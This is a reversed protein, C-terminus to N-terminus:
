KTGFNFQTVQTPPPSELKTPPVSNIDYGEFQHSKQLLYDDIPIIDTEIVKLTVDCEARLPTLRANFLPYSVSVGAVVAKLYFEGFVFICLPAPMFRVEPVKVSGAYRPADGDIVQPYQFSTLKEVMPMVGRPFVEQLTDYSNGSAKGPLLMPTNSGATADFWLKFSITREGGKVWLYNNSSFGVSSRNAWEVEKVDNILSPNFQFMLIDEMKKYGDKAMVGRIPSYPVDDYKQYEQTNYFSKLDGLDKTTLISM